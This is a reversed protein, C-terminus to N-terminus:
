DKRADMEFINHEQGLHVADINISSIGMTGTLKEEANFAGLTGEMGVEGKLGMDIPSFDNAFRFYMMGKTGASIPGFGLEAGLGFAIQFEGTKFNEEYSLKGLEGGELEYGKCNMKFSAVSGSFKMNVPCNLQELIEEQKIKELKEKYDKCNSAIYDPTPYLNQLDDLSHLWDLFMSVTSIYNAKYADGSLLFSQWFLYQNTWDYFKPLVNREYLDHNTKSQQLYTNLFGVKLACDQYPNEYKTGNKYMNAISNELEEKFKKDKQRYNELENKAAFEYIDTSVLNMMFVAKRSFPTNSIYGLHEGVLNSSNQNSMKDKMAEDKQHWERMFDTFSERQSEILLVDEMTAAAPVPKHKQPNFYEPVKVKVDAYNLKVKHKKALEDATLTYGNKLSKSIYKIAEAINGEDSLILGMACNMECHNPNIALGMMFYKKADETEGLSLYSQALNNALNDDSQKQLLNKFIPIAKQPYGSQSLVFALNNQVLMNGQNKQALRISAYVSAHMEGKLFLMIGLDMDNPNAQLVNEIQGIIAPTTNKICEQHLENIYTNVAEQGSLVPIANLLKVQKTPIKLNATAIGITVGKEKLDEITQMGSNMAKLAEDIEEQTMGEDKMSQIMMQQISTSNNSNPNTQAISYNIALFSIILLYYKM